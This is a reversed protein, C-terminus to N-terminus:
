PTPDIPRRVILIAIGASIMAIAQLVFFGVAGSTALFLAGLLSSAIGGLRGVGIAVGVGSARLRTPFVETAFATLVSQAGASSVGLVALSVFLVTRSGTPALPTLALSIAIAVGILCLAFLPRKAGIRGSLWGGALAAIVGGINFMMLARSADGLGFGADSMLTPLWNFASYVALLCSFFAACLALTDRRYASSMLNGVPAASAKVVEQQDVFETDADFSRHGMKRLIAPLRGRPDGMRVLFRPSEPLVLLLLLAFALPVLGGAVFLARWGIAPLMEAALFGGLVGGLPVCVAAFSVAIIRHRRPTFEAILSAANPMAGGLGMGAILRLIMLANIGDVQAVLATAAGFLFVCAVLMLRRGIRDGFSGALASGITMGILSASLVPAMAVRDVQWEKLIAPMAFGIVQNDFGDLIIAFATLALVLKSYSSWPGHELIAGIDERSRKPSTMM